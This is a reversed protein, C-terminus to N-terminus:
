CYFSSSRVKVVATVGLLAFGCSLSDFYYMKNIRFFPSHIDVLIQGNWNVYLVIYKLLIRRTLVHVYIHKKFVVIFYIYIIKEKKKEVSTRALQTM